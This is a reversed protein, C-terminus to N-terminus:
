KSEIEYRANELYGWTANTEYTFKTENHKIIEILSNYAHEWTSYQQKFTNEDIRYPVFLM